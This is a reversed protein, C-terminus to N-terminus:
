PRKGIIIDLTPLLEHRSDPAVNRTDPLGPTPYGDSVPPQTPPSSGEAAAAPSSHMALVAVVGVLSLVGGTVKPGAASAIRRARESRIRFFESMTITARTTQRGQKNWAM